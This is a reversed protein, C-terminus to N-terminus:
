KINRHVIKNGHILTENMTIVNPCFHQSIAAISSKKSNFGLVNWHMLSWFKGGDDNKDNKDNKNLFIKCYKCNPNTAKRGGRRIKKKM